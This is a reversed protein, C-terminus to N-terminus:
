KHSVGKLRPRTCLSLPVAFLEVGKFQMVPQSHGGEKKLKEGPAPEAGWHGPLHKLPSPWRIDILDIM